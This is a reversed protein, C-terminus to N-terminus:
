IWLLKEGQISPECASAWREAYSAAQSGGVAASVLLPQVMFLSSLAGPWATLTSATTLL